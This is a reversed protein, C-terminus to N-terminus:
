VSVLQLVTRRCAHTYFLMLILLLQCEIAYGCLVRCNGTANAVAEVLTTKGTGRPGYLLISKGPKM